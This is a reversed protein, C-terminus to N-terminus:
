EQDRDAATGVAQAAEHEALTDLWFTALTVAAGVALRAHRPRVGSRRRASGHGTGYLNRLEALGQVASSLSGLVQRAASEGRSSETVSLDEPALRLVRSARKALKQLSTAGEVSQGDQQLVYKAVAEVLEKAAGIAAEPDQDVSTTMRDCYHRFENRDLQGERTFLWSPGVVSAPRVLTGDVVLSSKACARRLQEKLEDEINSQALFLSLVELFRRCQEPDDWQIGAYYAEVTSRRKGSVQRAGSESATFGASEFIDQIQQTFIHVCL